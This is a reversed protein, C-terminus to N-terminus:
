EIIHVRLHWTNYTFLKYTYTIKCMSNNTHLCDFLKVFVKDCVKNCIIIIIRLFLLCTVCHGSYPHSDHNVDYGWSYCAWSINHYINTTVSTLHQLRIKPPSPTTYETGRMKCHMCAAGLLFTQITDGPAQIFSTGKMKKKRTGFLYLM